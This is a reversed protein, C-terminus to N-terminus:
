KFRNNTLKTYSYLLNQHFRGEVLEAGAGGM